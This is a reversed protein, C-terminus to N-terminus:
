NQEIAQKLAKLQDGDQKQMAKLFFGAALKMLGKGQAQATAVIRTQQGLSEFRYRMSVDVGLTSARAAHLRPPEHETIVLEMAQQRGNVERVERLVSGVGLPGTSVLETKVVGPLWKATQRYDTAFDFVAEIPRDIIESIEFSRM